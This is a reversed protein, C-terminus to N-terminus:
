RYCMRQAVWVASAGTDDPSMHFVWAEHKDTVSFTEGSEAQVGDGEWECGYYGHSTALDGM